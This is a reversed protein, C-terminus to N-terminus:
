VFGVRKPKAAVAKREAIGKAAKTLYAQPDQTGIQHTKGLAPLLDAATLGNLSLLRGFLGGASKASMGGKEVLLARALDWAMDDPSKLATSSKDEVTISQSRAEPIPKLGARTTANNENAEKDIEAIKDQRNSANEAQKRGGKAGNQAHNDAEDKADQLMKAARKNTIRGDVITIKGAEILRERITNWKRVSVGCVGALWRADDHIAQGQDYILDLIISYAGKEELSLSMTGLVFDGGYRKYWPRRSM